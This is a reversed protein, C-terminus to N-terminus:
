FISKLVNENSKIWTSIEEFLEALHIKPSWNYTDKAKKYDTVYYPIDVPSTDAVGEISVSNGTIEQCIKTLESLSVSIEHGGGINFTDGQHSEISPVQKQILDYLDRPHLLDRVQKGLGGFGFYKLPKKFIHHAVWLTFVGQDVKGFQGPGAMVGCRNSVVKMNYTEAYEQAFYEAALKTTGYLSRTLHTPFEETIGCSTLGPVKGIQKEDIVFRSENEILAIEKLPKISYVRSTSLFISRDVKKRAFEFCNIAGQLNTGLLYQPSGDNGAHVSPEASAEILLDFNGPLDELDSPSRIDGHVFQIDLSKFRSLNLESGRRKLNDFVIVEAKPHDKKYYEALSSGVFGAGGTILVLM